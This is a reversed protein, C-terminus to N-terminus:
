GKVLVAVVADVTNRLGAVTDEPDSDVVVLRAGAAEIVKLVQPEPQRHHLVLAVDQTKLTEGLAKLAAEDWKGDAPLAQSVVDLNLGSVLYGLRESLSVVSLNDAEALRTQSSSTLELM